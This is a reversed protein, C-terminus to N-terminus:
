EEDRGTICARHDAMVQFGRTMAKLFTNDSLDPQAVLEEPLFIGAQHFDEILLDEEPTHDNM